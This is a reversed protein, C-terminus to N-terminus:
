NARHPRDLTAGVGLTRARQSQLGWNADVEPDGREAGGTASGAEEIESSREFFFSSRSGAEGDTTSTGSWDWSATEHFIVDRCIHVRNEVPDYLRYVKSGAEYGLFVMKTSKDELKGLHPRVTKVHAVCGFTRLFSVKPKRGHWAEFPTKEAIAKTPSHNLIFEATSVAEGWFAAPMDKAKLMSRAIGVITQNRREMVGNQQPSYPATLHREVGKEACYRGFEVSTFEGGRDTRLM